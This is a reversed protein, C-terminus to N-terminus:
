AEVAKNTGILTPMVLTVPYCRAHPPISDVIIKAAKFKFRDVCGRSAAEPTFLVWGQIVGSM